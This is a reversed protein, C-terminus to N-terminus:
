MDEETNVVVFEDDSDEEKAEEVEEKAEEVEEKTEEVEEMQQAAPVSVIPAPVVPAPVAPVPAVPAEEVVVSIYRGPHTPAKLNATICLAEDAGVPSVKVEPSNVDADEDKFMRDGGVFQLVIGEPWENPGPNVMEWIKVFESGPRVVAGDKFTIDKVFRAKLTEKPVRPAADQSSTQSVADHSPKCAEAMPCTRGTQQPHHCVTTGWGKQYMNPLVPTTAAMRAAIPKRIKLFIHSPDHVPEPLAECNGCLDYDACNGCHYRVGYIDSNCGDCVVNYHPTQDVKVKVQGPYAIPIFTHDKHQSKASPLCSECLDYDPCQFCKHRVGIIPNLCLDCSAHHFVVDQRRTYRSRTTPREAEEVYKEIPAFTHHPHRLGALGHCNQCLDYNDCDQCKWRVGRVTNLCIDCYVSYHVAEKLPKEESVNSKESRSELSLDKLAKKLAPIADEQASPTEQECPEVDLRIVVMTPSPQAQKGFTTIAELVDADTKITKRAGNQDEYSLTMNNKNFLVCIKDHLTKYSLKEADQELNSLHINALTFRRFEALCTAKVVCFM